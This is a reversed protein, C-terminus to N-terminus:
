GRGEKWAAGGGTAKPCEGVDVEYLNVCLDTAQEARPLSRRVHVAKVVGHNRWPNFTSREDRSSDGDPGGCGDSPSFEPVDTRLATSM